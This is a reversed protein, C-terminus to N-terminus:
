EGPRCEELPLALWYRVLYAAYTGRWEMGAAAPLREILRDAEPLRYYPISPWLHHVAHFNMNMPAVFFREVRNSRYTILRHDDALRDSEPHSHEAFSRCNDGLYMFCYVPVVWLVPYAWWGVALTLGTALGAQLVVLLLLDGATYGGGTEEDAPRTPTRNPSFVNVVSRGLGSLGSLFGVFEAPDAKNFCAHKHRDPDNETALYQHHRLHNRNNLHTIAGIPGLCFLDTWWDNVRRNPFLRRHMGDHGIIFLAYFRAGIIPIVLAIVWWETWTAAAAWCAVITLWCTATDIVVRSPTLVSLERVREPPLLQRRFASYPDRGKGLVPSTARTGKGGSEAEIM